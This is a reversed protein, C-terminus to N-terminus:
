LCYGVHMMSSLREQSSILWDRFGVVKIFGLPKNGLKCCGELAEINVWM